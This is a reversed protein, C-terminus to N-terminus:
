VEKLFTVIEQLDSSTTRATEIENELRILTPYVRIALRDLQDQTSESLEVVTLTLEPFFTELTNKM